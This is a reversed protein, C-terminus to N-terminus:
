AVSVSVKRDLYRVLSYSPVGGIIVSVDNVYEESCDNIEKHKEFAEPLSAADENETIISAVIFYGRNAYVFLFLLPLAYRTTM